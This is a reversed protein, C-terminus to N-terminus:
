IDPNKTINRVINQYDYKLNEITLFFSFNLLTSQQLITFDLRSITSAEPVLPRIEPM